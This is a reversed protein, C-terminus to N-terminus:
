AVAAAASFANNINVLIRPAPWQDLKLQKCTQPLTTLQHYNKLNQPPPSDNRPTKFPLFRDLTLPEHRLITRPPPLRALLKMWNGPQISSHSIQGGLIPSSQLYRLQSKRSERLNSKRIPSHKYSAYNAGRVMPWTSKLTMRPTKPSAQYGKHAQGAGYFDAQTATVIASHLATKETFKMSNAAHCQKYLTNDIMDLRARLFSNFRFVGAHLYWHKDWLVLEIMTYLEIPTLM